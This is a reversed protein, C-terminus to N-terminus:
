LSSSLDKAVRRYIVYEGGIRLPRTIGDVRLKSIEQRIRSSFIALNVEGLTRGRESMAGAAFGKFLTDFEAGQELLTYLSDAEQASSSILEELSMMVPDQIQVILLQRVWSDVPAGNKMSPVYRWLKLSEVALSDWDADGSSGLMKAQDVTGDTQIHMIVSLRLGGYTHVPRLQPLPAMMVLEPQDTPEQSQQFAACGAVVLLLLVLSNKM